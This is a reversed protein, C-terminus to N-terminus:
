HTQQSSGPQITDEEDDEEGITIGRDFASEYADEDSLADEVFAGLEEAEDPDFTAVYGPIELNLLREDDDKVLQKPKKAAM